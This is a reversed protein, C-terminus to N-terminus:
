ARPHFTKYVEKLYSRDIHTYIQTTTISSHGLMEQIARLNAGGELLHTAFSHRFTHPTVRKKINAKKLYGKLIKLFGMRSMRGGRSNLFLNASGSKKLFDARAVRLYYKIARIAPAGLPVIREKEGKGMVRVFRDDLFIDSLKLNLLESIRMGSAYLTELMARDRVGFRSLSDPAEIISVVEAVSLVVPLKKRVKPLAINESPDSTIIKEDGLFRVFVKLVTIKRAISTTQLGFSGLRSIYERLTATTLGSLDAGPHEALFNLFQRIDLLYSAVSNKSLSREVILHSAFRDVLGELSKV